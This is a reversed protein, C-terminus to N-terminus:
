TSRSGASSSAKSCRSRHRKDPLNFEDDAFFISVRGVGRETSRSQREIEDLVADLERSAHRRGLEGSHLLRMADRM